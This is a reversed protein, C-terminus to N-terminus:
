GINQIRGEANLDAADGGRCGGESLALCATKPRLLDLSLAAKKEFIV